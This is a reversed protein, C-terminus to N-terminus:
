MWKLMWVSIDKQDTFGWWEQHNDSDSSYCKVQGQLTKNCWSWYDQKFGSVTVTLPRVCVFWKSPKNDSEEPCWLPSDPQGLGYQLEDFHQAFETRTLM